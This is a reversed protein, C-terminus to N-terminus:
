YCVDWGRSVRSKSRIDYLCVGAPLSGLTVHVHRTGLRERRDLRGRVIRRGHPFCSGQAQHFARLFHGRLSCHGKWSGSHHETETVTTKVEEHSLCVYLLGMTTPTRFGWVQRNTSSSSIPMNMGHTASDNLLM